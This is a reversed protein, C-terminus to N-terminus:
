SRKCKDAVYKLGQSIYKPCARLNSMLIISALRQAFRGKGVFEIDSLFTDTDFSIKGSAWGEMRGHRTAGADVSKMAGAFAKRLGAGFLDVEFTHTNTFIGYNPALAYIESFNNKGWISKSLLHIMMQNVIREPGLPDRDKEYRKPKRPDHDTFAIFPKKLGDPGLLILFPAFNTGSVSCVSIGLEDLDYGQQRALIPILYREADGEVLIIGRAFFLEGRNVDIYRELDAIDRDSLNINATSVAETADGKENQRLAVFDRVSTISAVHPSHTTM